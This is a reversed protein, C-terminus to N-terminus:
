VKQKKIQAFFDRSCIEQWGRVTRDCIAQMQQWEDAYLPEAMGVVYFGARKATEAAHLADEFVVIEAPEAGIQEAAALYLEPTDKGAYGEQPTLICVFADRIGLRDVAASLLRSYTTSALACRIGNEEAMALFERAHPKLPLYERYAAAAM